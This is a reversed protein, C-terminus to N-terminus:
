TQWSDPGERRGMGWGTPAVCGYDFGHKRATNTTTNPNKNTVTAPREAPQQAIGCGHCRYSCPRAVSHSGERIIRERRSHGLGFYATRANQIPPPPPKCRRARNRPRSERWSGQLSNVSTPAVGRQCDSPRTSNCTAWHHPCPPMRSSFPPPASM